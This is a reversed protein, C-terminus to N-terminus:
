GKQLVQVLKKGLRFAMEKEREVPMRSTERGCGAAAVWITSLSLALFEEVAAFDNTGNWLRFEVTGHFHISALNLTRRRDLRFEMDRVAATVASCYSETWESAYVKRAAAVPLVAVIDKEMAAWLRSLRAFFQKNRHEPPVEVHIHLGTPPNGEPDVTIASFFKRLATRYKSWEPLTAPGLRYELVAGGHDTGRTGLPCAEPGSVAEVEMGFRM